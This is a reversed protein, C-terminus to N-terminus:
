ARHIQLDGTNVSATIHLEGGGPGDPGNDTISRTGSDIGEWSEDFVEASGLDVSADVDVDVDSPVTIEIAGLGVRVELSRTTGAFDINSMDLEISGVNRHVRTPLDDVSDPVLTMAGFFPEDSSFGRGMVAHGSGLAITLIVGLSILWRARGFWTGVLLGLGLVALPMAVYALPAVDFGYLDAGALAGLVLVAVSLTLLGLRSRPRPPAPPPQWRQVPPPTM